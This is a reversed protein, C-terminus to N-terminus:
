PNPPLTERRSASLRMAVLAAAATVGLQALEAEAWLAGRPATMRVTRFSM